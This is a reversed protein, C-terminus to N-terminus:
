DGRWSYYPSIILDTLLAPTALFLIRSLLAPPRALFRRSSRRRRCLLRRDYIFSTTDNVVNDLENAQKALKNANSSAM